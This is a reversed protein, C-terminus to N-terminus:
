SFSAFGNTYLEWLMHGTKTATRAYRYPQEQLARIAAHSDEVGRLLEHIRDYDPADPAVCWALVRKLPEELKGRSGHFKPLVKMLVAADFAADTNEYLGNAEASVLFSIIEDFVRYGFHLHYPRLQDNLAQLHERVAGNERVYAAIAPKEIRAFQGEHTFSRLVAKQEGATVGEGSIQSPDPPYSSFDAETLELTFARDLVKPSFTHTTEDVNVTGIVYFNPPVKVQAPPLDGEADNPYPLRLAERTWGAADRGSELVSLLDAFYYEVRALNMEDLIVFWAIGDQRRYSQVARLLFRLFDTWEYTGTLPNYYGLLSKSDRWDTRVPVFLCNRPEAASAEKRFRPDSPKGMHFGILRGDDDSRPELVVTDGQAFSENFWPPAEGKLYLAIYNTSTYDAYQLLCTQSQDAFTFDVEQSEGRSPPEYLKTFHKPIILRNYKLMYPKVTISILDDRAEVEADAPQPLMDAFVQALKTKGTGSIGSLIVFAKTQLASYFTAVQWDSYQLGRASLAQNLLRRLDVPVPVEGEAEDAVLDEIPLLSDAWSPWPGLHANRLVGLGEGSFRWFYGQKFNDDKTFPSDEIELHVLGERVDDLPIPDDFEVYEVEVLRGDGGHGGSDEHPAPKVDPDSEIRSLGRILQDFYHVVVDGPQVDGLLRWHILSHGQDTELPAWLYEDATAYHYSDGQNVWWVNAPEGRQKRLFERDARPIVAFWLPLVTLYARMILGVIDEGAAVAEEGTLRQLVSATWYSDGPIEAIANDLEVASTATRIENAHSASVRWRPSAALQDIKARFSQSNRLRKSFRQCDRDTDLGEEQAWEPTPGEVALGFDLTKREISRALYFMAQHRWDPRRTNKPVIWLTQLRDGRAVYPNTKFSVGLVGELRDELCHWIHRGGHETTTVYREFDEATFRFAM